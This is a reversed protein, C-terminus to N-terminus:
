YKKYISFKQCGQETQKFNLYASMGIYPPTIEVM